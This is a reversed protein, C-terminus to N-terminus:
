QILPHSVQIDCKIQSKSFDSDQKWLSEALSVVKAHYISLIFTM